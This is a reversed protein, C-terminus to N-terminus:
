YEVGDIIITPNKELERFIEQQEEPLTELDNESHFSLSNWTLIFFKPLLNLNEVYKKETSELLEFKYKEMTKEWTERNISSITSYALDYYIYIKDNTQKLWLIKWDLCWEKKHCITIYSATDIREPKKVIEYDWLSIYTKSKIFWYTSIIVFIIVFALITTLAILIIRIIPKIFKTIIKMTKTILLKFGRYYKTGLWFYKLIM